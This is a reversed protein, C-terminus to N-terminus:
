SLRLVAGEFWGWKKDPEASYIVFVTFSRATARYPWWEESDVDLTAEDGSITLPWFALEEDNGDYLYLYAETSAPFSTEAEFVHALPVGQRRPLVLRDRIPQHGIAM